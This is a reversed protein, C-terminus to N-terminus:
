TVFRMLQDATLALVGFMLHCMVKAHGRVRVYRGGFEDKLRANAREATSRERLRVVEAPQYRIRARARAEAAFAAKEGRRAQAAIIPVRGLARSTAHIEPMDYAKDMLDYLNDIRAATMHALPIAVQSDHLSASTLIASVPIGGDATDLHLKYGFWVAANGKSNPKRGVACHRPLDAIMEDPTMTQQRALRRVGEWGPEGPQPQVKKRCKKPTKIKVPKERADIATSDRSVHGVIRDKHTREILAQHVRTPLAGLAFEAFARSFTAESPVASWRSWGCLRRLTSDCGLRDILQRTDPLGLVSKAVFARALAARDSPPRGPLGPCAVLFACVPALELVTVFRELKEGLPGVERAISPFLEGQLRDRLDSLDAALPM